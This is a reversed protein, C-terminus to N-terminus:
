ILHMYTVKIQYQYKKQIHRNVTVYKDNGEAVTNVDKGVEVTIINVLKPKSYKLKM